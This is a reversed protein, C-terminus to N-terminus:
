SKTCTRRLKDAVWLEPIFFPLYYDNDPKILINKDSYNASKSMVDFAPISLGYPVKDRMSGSSFNKIFQVNLKSMKEHVVLQCSIVGLSNCVFDFRIKSYTKGSEPNYMEIDYFNRVGGLFGEFEPNDEITLRFSRPDQPNIKIDPHPVYVYDESRCEKAFSPAVMMLFALAFIALKLIM